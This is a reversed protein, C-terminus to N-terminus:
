KWKNRRSEWEAWLKLYGEKNYNDEPLTKPKSSKYFEYVKDVFTLVENKYDECSIITEKSSETILKVHTGEHIVWWNKGEVMPYVTEIHVIPDKQHHDIHHGESPILCDGVPNESTHNM